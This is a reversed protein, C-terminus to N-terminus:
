AIAPLSSAPRIMPIKSMLHAPSFDSGLLSKKELRPFVRHGKPSSDELTLLQYKFHSKAANFFYKLEVFSDPASASVLFLLGARRATDENIFRISVRLSPM